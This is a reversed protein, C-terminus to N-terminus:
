SLCPSRKGAQRSAIMITPLLEYYLVAFMLRRPAGMDKLHDIRDRDLFAMEKAVYFTVTFFTIYFAPISRPLQGDGLAALIFTVLLTAPLSRFFDLEFRIAQHIPRFYGVVIGVAVGLVTGLAFVGFWRALTPPFHKSFGIPVTSFLASIVDLLPPFAPRDLVTRVVVYISAYVAVRVALPLVIKRIGSMLSVSAFFVPTIAAM